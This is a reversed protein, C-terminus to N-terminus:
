QRTLTFTGATVPPACVSSILSFRGDLASVPTGVVTAAGGFQGACSPLAPVGGPAVAITYDLTVGNLTGSLVGNLLVTGSPLLVLAPGSVQTAEQTLTWTM